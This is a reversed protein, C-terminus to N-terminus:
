EMWSGDKVITNRFNVMRYDNETRAEFCDNIGGRITELLLEDTEESIINWLCQGLRLSPYEIMLMYARLLFMNYQKETIQYRKYWLQKHAPEDKSITLQAGTKRQTM